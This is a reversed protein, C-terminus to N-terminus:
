VRHLGHRRVTYSQNATLTLTYTGDGATQVNAGGTATVMVAGLGAGSLLITGSVTFTGGGGGGSATGTFKLGSQVSNLPTFVFQSPIFTVGGKSATLTYNLGGTLTLDFAGNGALAM